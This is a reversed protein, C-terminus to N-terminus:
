DRPAEAHSPVISEDTAQPSYERPGPLNERNCVSLIEGLKRMMLDAKADLRKESNKMTQASSNDHDNLLREIERTMRNDREESVALCQETNGILEAQDSKAQSKADAVLEDRLREHGQQALGKKSEPM